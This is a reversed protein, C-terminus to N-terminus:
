SLKPDLLIRYIVSGVADGFREYEKNEWANKANMIDVIIRLFDSTIRDMIKQLNLHSLKEIIVKIDQVSGACDKISDMIKKVADIIKMVADVLEKIHKIDLHKLTELAENIQQIIDPVKNICKLIEEVDHNVNMGKLLGRVLQIYEELTLTLHTKYILVMHMIDGLDKGVQQFNSSMYNDISDQMDKFIQQPNSIFNLMLRKIITSAMLHYIKQFLKDYEDNPTSCLDIEVISTIVVEYLDVYLAATLPLNSFDLKDIKDMTEVFMVELSKQDTLCGILHDLFQDPVGLGILFGRMMLKYEEYSFGGVTSLRPPKGCVVLSTLV